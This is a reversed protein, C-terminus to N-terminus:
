GNQAGVNFEIVTVNNEYQVAMTRLPSAQQQQGGEQRYPYPYYPPPPPPYYPYYPPPPPPYYPHPHHYGPGFLPVHIDINFGGAVMVEFHLEVRVRHRTAESVFKPSPVDLFNKSPLLVGEPTAIEGDVFVKGVARRDNNNTIRLLYPKGTEVVFLGNEERAGTGGGYVLVSVDFNNSQM